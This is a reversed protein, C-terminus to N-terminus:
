STFPYRLSFTHHKEVEASSVNPLSAEKNHSVARNITTHKAADRAGICYIDTADKMWITVVLFHKSVSGFALHGQPPPTSFCYHGQNYIVLM